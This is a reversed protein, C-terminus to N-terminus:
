VFPSPIGHLDPREDDDDDHDLRPVMASMSLDGGFGLGPIIEVPKPWDSRAWAAQSLAYQDDDMFIMQGPGDGATLEYVAMAVAIVRDDHERNTRTDIKLVNPSTERLRVSLIEKRLEPDDPLTLLRGRLAQMIATALKGVSQTGFIFEECSVGARRLQEVMLYAQSPDYLLKSRYSRCFEAIWLRVDDLSVPAGPLPTWVQMRDVLVRTGEGERVSHAIVAVTRDNRTGLDLTCVYRIGEQPPMPSKLTCAADVDAQDAIADDAALWENLWLRGFVSDMLRQRESEVEAPDVWPPPGHIDSVRWMPDSKAAQFIDHAFHAPSGATTIVLGRGGTKVLGAWLSDFLERHSPTDPWNALEDCILWCPRLGHSGSSDAALIEIATGRRPFTIRRGDVRVEGKLEPTGNVFSQVSQRLLAAQDSDSAAVYGLEDSPTPFQTLGAVISTAAADRTKSYGKARGQWHRRPGSLDLVATADNWQDATAMPGWQGVHDTLAALLALPDLNVM